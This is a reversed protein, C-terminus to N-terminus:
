DQSQEKRLKAIKKEFKKIKVELRKAAAEAGSLPSLEDKRYRCTFYGIINIWGRKRDYQNLLIFLIGVGILGSLIDFMTDNMSYSGNVFSKQLDVGIEIAVNYELVEYLAIFGMPVAFLYLHLTAMRFKDFGEHYSLYYLTMLGVMFGLFARAFYDFWWFTGSFGFVIGLFYSVFLISYFSTIMLPHIEKKFIYFAIVPAIMLYLGVYAYVKMETDVFGVALDYVVMGVAVILLAYFIVYNIKRSKM